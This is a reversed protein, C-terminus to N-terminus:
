YYYFWLWFLTATVLCSRFIRQRVINHHSGTANVNQGVKVSNLPKFASLHCVCCQLRRCLSFHFWKILIRTGLILLIWLSKLTSPESPVFAHCIFWSMDWYTKCLGQLMLRTCPAYFPTEVHGNRIKLFEDSALICM